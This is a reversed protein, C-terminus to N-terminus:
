LDYLKGRVMSSLRWECDAQYIAAEPVAAQLSEAVWLHFKLDFIAINDSDTRSM